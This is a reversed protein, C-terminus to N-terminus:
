SIELLHETTPSWGLVAQLDAMALRSQTVMRAGSAETARGRGPAICGRLESARNAVHILVVTRAFAAHEPPVEQEWHYVWLKPNVLAWTMPHAESNHPVLRYFGPPVCSVGKKGCPASPSPVWPREMTESSFGDTSLKGLSCDPGKYDRLLTLKM